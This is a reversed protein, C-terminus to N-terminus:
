LVIELAKATYNLLFGMTQPNQSTYASDAFSLECCLKNALSYMRFGFFLAQIKLEFKM